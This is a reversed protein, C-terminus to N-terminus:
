ETDFIKSDFSAQIKVKVLGITGHLFSIIM